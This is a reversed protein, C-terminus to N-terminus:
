KDVLRRFADQGDPSAAWADSEERTADWEGRHHADRIAQIASMKEQPARRMASVLEDDLTASPMAVPSRFDHYRYGRAAFAMEALGAAMLADALREHPKM